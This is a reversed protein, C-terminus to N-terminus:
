RAVRATRPLKTPRSNVRRLNEKSHFNNRENLDWLLMGLEIGDTNGGGATPEWHDIISGIDSNANKFSFKSETTDACSKLYLKKENLVFNRTSGVPILKLIINQTRQWESKLYKPNESNDLLTEIDTDSIQSEAPTSPPNEGPFIIRNQSGGYLEAEMQALQNLQEFIRQRSEQESEEQNM